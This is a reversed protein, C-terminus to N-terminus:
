SHSSEDEWHPKGMGTPKYDLKKSTGALPRDAIGKKIDTALKMSPRGGKAGKGKGSMKPRKKAGQRLKKPQNQTLKKNKSNDKPSWDNAHENSDAGVDADTESRTTWDHGADSKFQGPIHTGQMPKHELGKKIGTELKKSQRGIKTDKEKVWAKTSGAQEDRNAGAQRQKKGGMEGPWEAKRKGNSKRLASGIIDPFGNDDPTAIDQEGADEETETASDAKEHEVAYDPEDHSDLYNQGDEGSDNGSSDSETEVLDLGQTGLPIIGM